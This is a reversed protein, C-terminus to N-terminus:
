RESGHLKQRNGQLCDQALALEDRNEYVLVSGSSPSQNRDAPLKAISKFNKRTQRRSVLHDRGAQVM